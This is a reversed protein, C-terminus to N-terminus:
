KWVFFTLGDHHVLEISAITDNESYMKWNRDNLVVYQENYLQVFFNLDDSERPVIISMDCLDNENFYQFVVARDMGFHVYNRGDDKMEFEPNYKEFEELIEKKSFGLRSQANSQSTVLISALLLCQILVM